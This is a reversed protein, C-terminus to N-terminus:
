ASARLERLVESTATFNPDSEIKTFNPDFEIKMMEARGGAEAVHSAGREFSSFRTQGWNSWSGL